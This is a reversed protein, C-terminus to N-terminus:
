VCGIPQLCILFVSLALRQFLAPRDAHRFMPLPYIFCFFLRLLVLFFLTLCPVLIRVFFISCSLYLYYPTRCLLACAYLQVFSCKYWRVFTRVPAPPPDEPYARQPRRTLPLFLARRRFFDACSVHCSLSSTPNVNFDDEAYWAVRRIRRRKWQLTSAVNPILISDCTPIFKPPRM